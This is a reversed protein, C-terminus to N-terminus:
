MPTKPVLTTCLSNLWLPQPGVVCSSAVCDSNISQGWSQGYYTGSDAGCPCSQAIDGNITGGVQQGTTKDYILPDTVLSSGNILIVEVLNCNGYEVIAGVNSDNQVDWHDLTILSSGATACVCVPQCGCTWVVPPCSCGGLTGDDVASDVPSGGSDNGGSAAADHASPPSSSRNGDCALMAVAATLLLRM